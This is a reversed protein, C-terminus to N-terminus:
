APKQKGEWWPLVEVKPHLNPRRAWVMLLNTAPRDVTHRVVFGLSRLYFTASRGGDLLVADILGHRKAIAAAVPITIGARVVGFCVNGAGDRGLVVRRTAYAPVNPMGESPPSAVPKGGRLIRPGVGAFAVSAAGSMAAGRDHFELGTGGWTVVTGVTPNRMLVRGESFAPAILGKSRTDYFVASLALLPSERRVMGRADECTYHRSPGDYGRATVLGLRVSTEPVRVLVGFSGSVSGVKCLALSGSSRSVRGSIVAGKLV